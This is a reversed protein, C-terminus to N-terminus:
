PPIEHVNQEDAAGALDRQGADLERELVTVLNRDEVAALALLRQGIADLRDDAVHLVRCAVRLSPSRLQSTTAWNMTNVGSWICCSISTNVPLVPWYM